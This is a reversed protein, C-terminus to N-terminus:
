RNTEAEQIYIGFQMNKSHFGMARSNIAVVREGGGM